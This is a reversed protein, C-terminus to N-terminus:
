IPCSLYMNSDVDHFLYWQPLINDLYHIGHSPRPELGLLLFALVGTVRCSSFLVNTHWNRSHSGGRFQPSGAPDPPGPLKSAFFPWASLEYIAHVRVSTM